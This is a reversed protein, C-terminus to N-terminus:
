LPWLSLIRETEMADHGLRPVSQSIETCQKVTEISSQSEGIVTKFSLFNKLRRECPGCLLHPFFKAQRLPRGCIDEAAALSARNGKAYINKSCSVDGVSLVQLLSINVTTSSTSIKKPTQQINETSM